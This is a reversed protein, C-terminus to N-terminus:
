LKLYNGFYVAGKLYFVLTLHLVKMDQIDETVVGVVNETISLFDIVM